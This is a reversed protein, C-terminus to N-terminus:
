VVKGCIHEGGHTDKWRWWQLMEDERGGGAYYVACRLVYLVCRDVHRGELKELKLYLKEADKGKLCSPRKIGLMRLDAAVAKGVGPITTLVDKTM